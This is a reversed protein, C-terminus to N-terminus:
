IPTIHVRSKDQQKLDTITYDKEKFDNATYDKEYKLQWADLEWFFDDELDFITGNVDTLSNEAIYYQTLYRYM